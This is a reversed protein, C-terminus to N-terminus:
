AAMPKEAEDTNRVRRVSNLELSLKALKRRLRTNESQLHYLRDVAVPVAGNHERLWMSYAPQSVGVEEIADDVSYGHAVLWDVQQMKLRIDTATIM